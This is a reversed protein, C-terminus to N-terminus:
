GIQIGWGGNSIGFDALTTEYLDQWQNGDGNVSIELDKAKFGSVGSQGLSAWLISLAKYETLVTVLATKKVDLNSNAIVTQHAMEVVDNLYVDDLGDVVDVTSNGSALKMAEIVKAPDYEQAM